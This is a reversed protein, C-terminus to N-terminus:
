RAPPAGDNRAASARTDRLADQRARMLDAHAERERRAAGPIDDADRLNVENQLDDMADKHERIADDLAHRRRNPM